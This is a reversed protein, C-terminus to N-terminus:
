ESAEETEEKAKVGAAEQVAEDVVETHRIAAREVVRELRFRKRASVPRTESIVVKDGEQAENAEDHAMLKTSSQYQKKYIPHTKRTHITVVITKDGKNSSVIGTFQKAM